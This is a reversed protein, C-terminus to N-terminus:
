AMLRRLETLIHTNHALAPSLDAGSEGLYYAAVEPKNLLERGGGEMVIGGNEIVYGRDAISLSLRANQESLLISIGRNRLEAILRFIEIVLSPSLGLSPEDLILLRPEAMLGRAIALMQQQGGSLHGAPTELRELLVPFTQCVDEIRQRIKGSGSCTYAGLELNEQVSLSPFVQRGEPVQVIGAVVRDRATMQDIPRGDFLISGESIPMLGSIARVMTSKGAGNAGILTVIEGKDVKLNISRIVNAGGYGTSIAKLDLM